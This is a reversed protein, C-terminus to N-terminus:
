QTEKLPSSQVEQHPMIRSQFPLSHQKHIAECLGDRGGREWAEFLNKVQDETPYRDELHTEKKPEPTTMTELIFARM